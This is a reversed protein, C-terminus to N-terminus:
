LVMQLKSRTYALQLVPCKVTNGMSLRIHDQLGSDIKPYGNHRPYFTVSQPGANNYLFEKRADRVVLLCMPWDTLRYVLAELNFSSILKIKKVM